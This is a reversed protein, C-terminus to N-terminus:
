TEVVADAVVTNLDVLFLPAVVTVGAAVAIEGVAAVAEVVSESPEVFGVFTSHFSVEIANPM